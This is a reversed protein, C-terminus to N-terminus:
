VQCFVTVLRAGVWLRVPADCVSFLLAEARHCVVRRMVDETVPFYPQLHDEYDVMEPHKPADTIQEWREQTLIPHGDRDPVIWRKGSEDVNHARRQEVQRSFCPVTYWLRM